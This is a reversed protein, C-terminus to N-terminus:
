KGSFCRFCGSVSLIDVSGHINELCRVRILQIPSIKEPVGNQEQDDAAEGETKQEQQVASGEHPGDIGIFLVVHRKDIDSTKASAEKMVEKSFM